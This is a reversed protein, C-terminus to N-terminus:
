MIVGDKFISIERFGNKENETRCEGSAVKLLYKIFDESVGEIGEEMIRGANYDIWRNKRNNLGTNSSIKVTPVICGFPTGRGTTFLIMQAGSSVLNTCSVLDNGPGNLLYFGKEKPQEGYDLTGTVPAKGGKQVCGLSKEELTTIGGEKNGPSPNEYIVQDYKQFYQKYRNILQVVKDFVQESVARDMLIQEAGFMEPVETLIGTGGISVIKDNIRGCLPNATIGSFADSGGCKFGIVLENAGVWERQDTSIEKALSGLIKIGEEYEDEVNQITLFAVRQNSIDGLVKLFDKLQNNECGLSLILVAGANPHRVLGCLIKQTRELDEGLQSCGMNHTLAFFGDTMGMYRQNAKRALNEATKNVCGVTPIIWIENRIGVKGNKRRYGWFSYKQRDEEMKSFIGSYNKEINKEPRYSYEQVGELNTVLNQSHIHEGISVPQTVHGIPYGYKIVNEGIEFNKLAIKHGFPIREKILIHYQGYTCVDGKQLEKLAVAVNDMDHIKMFERKM